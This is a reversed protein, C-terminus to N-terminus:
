DVEARMEEGLDAVFSIGAAATSGGGAGQRGADDCRNRRRRSGLGGGRSPSELVKAEALIV